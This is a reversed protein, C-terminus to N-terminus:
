QYKEFIKQLTGDEKMKKITEDFAPLIRVFSSTKGICLHFSVSDLVVPIEIIQDELGLKKITYKTVQAGQATIDGRGKALKLLVNDFKACWDINLGALNKEAWGNGVYDLLFFPQLDAITKIQKLADMKPHGTRTFLTVTNLLVPEASIEAYTQREPTPVSIYADAAGERVMLQARAWPYGQHSVSVGMRTQIAENVIDILIGRMQGSDDEWSYPPFNNFYVFKMTEQAVLPSSCLLCAMIFISVIRLMKLIKM